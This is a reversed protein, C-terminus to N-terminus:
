AAAGPEPPEDPPPQPPWPIQPDAALAAVLRHELEDATADPLVEDVVGLIRDLLLGLVQRDEPSAPDIGSPALSRHEAVDVEVLRRLGRIRRTIARAEELLDEDTYDESHARLWALEAAGEAIAIQVARLRDAIPMGSQYAVVVPDREPCSEM